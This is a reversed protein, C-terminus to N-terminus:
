GDAEGSAGDSGTAGSDSASGDDTVTDSDTSSGTATTSEEAAGNRNERADNQEQAGNRRRDEGDAGREGDGREARESRDGAIERAIESVEDGSLERANERLDEIETANVGKSQLLEDPLGEAAEASENAAREVNQSRAALEAIRAAYEGQSISGNARADRLAARRESLNAVREHTENVKAAILAARAEDSDARAVALGFARSEVEGDLEAKGVGVVGSLREGPAVSTNADTATSQNASQAATASAGTADNALLGAAPVAAVTGVLVLVAVFTVSLRRM